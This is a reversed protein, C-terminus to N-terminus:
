MKSTEPGAWDHKLVCRGVINGKALDQMANNVDFISRFHHPVIPVQGGRLMELMDKAQQLNGCLWGEISRPGLPIMPIPLQLKGGM